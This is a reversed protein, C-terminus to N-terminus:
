RLGLMLFYGWFYRFFTGRLDWRIAILVKLASDSHMKRECYEGPERDM